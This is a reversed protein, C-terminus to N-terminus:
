SEGRCLPAATSRPAVVHALASGHSVALGILLWGLAAPLCMPAGARQCLRRDLHGRGSRMESAYVTAPPQEYPRTRGVM